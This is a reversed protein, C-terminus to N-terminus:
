ELQLGARLFEVPDHALGAASIVEFHLHPAIALWKRADEDRSTSGMSGIRTGALVRTGTRCAVNALHAYLTFFSSDDAWTHRLVAFLGFDSQSEVDNVEAVIGELVSFVDDKPIWGPQRSPYETGRACDSFMVEVDHGTPIKEAPAVDCGRHFRKGCDRTWGPLGYNPNATTRAFYADPATFLDTRRTPWVLQPVKHPAIAVFETM